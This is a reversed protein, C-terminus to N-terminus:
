SASRVGPRRRAKHEYMRLDAMHKLRDRTPNEHVHVSGFSAGVFEFEDRRLAVVAADLMEEVFKLDGNPCTIAFEDGGLRYLSAHSGLRESLHEAFGCLLEDGRQHGYKDNYHKLGDLDIFTLSAQSPLTALEADLRYRNPLGTLADTYAIRISHKARRVASDKESHLLSFQHALVLGLLSVEVVVASLGVHEIYISHGNVGSLSITTFGLIFFVGIAILYVRASSNGDRARSIAAVLGYTVFLGVGVRALELSFNPYVISIGVFATLLGLLALAARYLRPQRRPRIELLAVVFVVYAANSFLIPVSAMYFWHMGLLDPSLLLSTGNFLLNGLIFLAYMLDATRKRALTLAAYYFGLGLFVGLCILVLANGPKIAQRYHALTDVFPEPQGILFPSRLETILTYRGRQLAVDRGHRLFFPNPASSQIGGAMGAVRKGQPDFVHHRFSGITSTNKFCLVYTGTHPAEFTGQYVYRASSRGLEARRTLLRTDLRAQGLYDWGAPPEYWAGRLELPQAQGTESSALWVVLLAALWCLRRSARAPACSRFAVSGRLAGSPARAVIPHSVPYIVLRLSQANTRACTLRSRLNMIGSESRMRYRTRAEKAPM